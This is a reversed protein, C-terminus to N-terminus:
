GHSRMREFFFDDTTRVAPAIRESFFYCGNSCSLRDTLFFNDDTRVARGIRELIKKLREAM